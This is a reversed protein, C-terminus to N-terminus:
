EEGEEKPMAAYQSCWKSGYCFRQCRVSEGHRYVAESGSRAAHGRAEMEATPGSFVRLARTSGTKQSAWTPAKEWREQPTCHPLADPGDRDMAELAEAHIRVRSEIFSQTYDAEWLRIPVMIISRQPYDERKAADYQKWDLLYALIEAREVQFGCHRLLHAYCNLQQEWEPKEGLLFSFVSTCKRDIVAKRDAEYLDLKGSVKWGGVEINIREEGLTGNSAPLHREAYAHVAKGLMIRMRSEADVVIEHDHARELLVKRPPSMLRSISIHGAPLDYDDKTLALFDPEPLGIENTFQM